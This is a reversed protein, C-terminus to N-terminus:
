NRRRQGSRLAARPLSRGDHPVHVAGLAPELVRLGRVVAGAAAGQEHLVLRPRLRRHAVRGLLRLLTAQNRELVDAGLAGREDDAGSAAARALVEDRLSVARRDAAGGVAVDEEVVDGDRALVRHEHVLVVREKDLVLPAQVPREEVAAADLGAPQLVAVLELDALVLEAEQLFSCAVRRTLVGVTGARGVSALWCLASARATVATSAVVSRARRSVIPATHVRSRASNGSM